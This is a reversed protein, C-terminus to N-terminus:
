TPESTFQYGQGRISHIHRSQHNEPEFYRRLRVIFNDVTRATPYANQGWIQDLIEDRSVVHGRKEILLKMLQCEKVSMRFRRDGHSGQFTLFDITNEAWRFLSLDKERYWSARRLMGEIRLLLEEIEFPKTLYDDAGTKLGQVRHSPESLASLMLIPADPKIVRLAEILELGTMSPLLNDVMCLDWPHKRAHSLCSEADLFSQVRYGETALRASLFELITSDDEVILLQEKM